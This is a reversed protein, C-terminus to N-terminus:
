SHDHLRGFLLGFSRILRDICLYM